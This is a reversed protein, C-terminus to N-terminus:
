QEEERCAVYEIYLVFYDIAPVILMVTQPLSILQKIVHYIYIYTPVTIRFQEQM